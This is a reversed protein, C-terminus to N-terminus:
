PTMTATHKRARLNNKYYHQSPTAKGALPLASPCNIRLAFRGLTKVNAPRGARLCIHRKYHRSYNRM